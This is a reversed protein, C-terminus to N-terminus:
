QQLSGMRYEALSYSVGLCRAITDLSCDVYERMDDDSYILDVAFRDAEIEYRNTVMHTRTDMFVRNMSKHMLSHGLEHACVWNRDQESLDNDLYIIHCRQIYQYYGRIGSLPTDIVVYGREQSIRVPDRTGHYNALRNAFSKTDM